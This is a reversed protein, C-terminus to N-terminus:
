CRRLADAYFRVYEDVHDRWYATSHDGPWIRPRVDIEASLALM